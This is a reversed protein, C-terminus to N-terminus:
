NPWQLRDDHVPHPLWGRHQIRLRCVGDEAITVSANQGFRGALEDLVVPAINAIWCAAERWSGDPAHNVAPQWHLARADLESQLQAQRAGNADETLPLSAPNCASLLAHLHGASPPALPPRAGLVLRLRTNGTSVQYIADLYAALLADGPVRLGAGSSLDHCTM